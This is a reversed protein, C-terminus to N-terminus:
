RQSHHRGQERGARYEATRVDGYVGVFLLTDKGPAVVRERVEAAAAPRLLMM